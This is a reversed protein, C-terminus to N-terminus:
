IEGQMTTCNEYGNIEHTYGKWSYVRGLNKYERRIDERILEQEAIIHM